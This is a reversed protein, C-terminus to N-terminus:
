LENLIATCQKTFSWEKIKIASKKGMEKLTFKNSVMLNLKDSLSALNNSEFIYGNEGDIVLDEACGVHDSVLIAKSCAMAENVALGWTEESGQSPLCFLDCAQYIVPMQTQNQFDMFHIKQSKLNSIQSKLSNELEGNGVFLLHVGDLNLNIFAKLLLEPNKKAELKGAFLILMQDPSIQLQQRLQLAEKSRDEAFRNNDVAHPAFVLQNEKLGFKKFYAKNASGVYFAKNSHQYVWKLFLGRLIEKIGKREDILTSDGRFWLPIKGKFYRLASIHSQYAWGYILIAMPDFDKIKQKLTPNIIGSFHHSGPNKATNALFEYEYGQLLPLDWDIWKKFDPDYKAKAGEKGWTYFVKLECSQALLQFLPVYYQIPHTIIIALKKM